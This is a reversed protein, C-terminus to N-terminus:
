YLFTHKGLANSEITIGHLIYHMLMMSFILSLSIPYSDLHLPMQFTQNITFWVTNWLSRHARDLSWPPHKNYHTKLLHGKMIIIILQRIKYQIM